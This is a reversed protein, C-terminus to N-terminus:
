PCSHISSYRHTVWMTRRAPKTWISIELHCFRTKSTSPSFTRPHRCDFHKAVVVSINIWEVISHRTYSLLGQSLPWFHGSLRKM